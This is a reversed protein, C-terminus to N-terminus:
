KIQVSVDCSVIRKAVSARLQVTGSVTKLERPKLTHTKTARGIQEEDGNLFSITIECTQPEPAENRLKVYWAIKIFRGSSVASVARISHDLIAITDALVNSYSCLIMLCAFLSILCHKANSM